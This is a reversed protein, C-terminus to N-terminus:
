PNLDESPPPEVLREVEVVSARGMRRTIVIQPPGLVKWTARGFARSDVDIEDSTLLDASACVLSGRQVIRRRGGESTVERSLAPILRAPMWEDSVKVGAKRGEVRPGSRVTRVTRARDALAPTLLAM